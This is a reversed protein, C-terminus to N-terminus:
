SAGVYAENRIAGAASLKAQERSGLRAFDYLRRDLLTNREAEYLDDEDVNNWDADAQSQAIWPIPGQLPLGFKASLVGPLRDLTEVTAVIVNPRGLWDISERLQKTGLHLPYRDTCLHRVQGNHFQRFTVPHFRYLDALKLRRSKIYEYLRHAKTRKVYNYLSVVREVPDRVVALYYLKEDERPSAIWSGHGTILIPGNRDRRWDDALKGFHHPIVNAEDFCPYLAAHLASGACRPIHVHFITIKEGAANAAPDYEFSHKM